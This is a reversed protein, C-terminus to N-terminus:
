AFLEASSATKSTVRLFRAVFDRVKLLCQITVLPYFLQIIGAFLRDDSEINKNMEWPKAKKSSEISPSAIVNSQNASIKKFIILNFVSVRIHYDYSRREHVRVNILKLPFRKAFLSLDFRLGLHLDM